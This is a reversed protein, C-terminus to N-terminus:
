WGRIVLPYSDTDYTPHTSTCTDSMLSYQSDGIPQHVTLRLGLAPSFSTVRGVDEGRCAVETHFTRLGACVSDLADVACVHCPSPTVLASRSNGARSTGSLLPRHIAGDLLGSKLPM